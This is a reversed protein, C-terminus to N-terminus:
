RLVLQPYYLFEDERPSSQVDTLQERCESLEDQCYPNCWTQIDTLKQRCRQMESHCIAGYVAAARSQRLLAPAMTESSRKDHPACEEADRNSTLRNEAPETESSSEKSPQDSLYDSFAFGAFFCAVGVDILGLSTILITAKRTLAGGRIFIVVLRRQM